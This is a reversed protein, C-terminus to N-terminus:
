KLMNYLEGISIDFINGDKDRVKVLTNQAFCLHERQFRENGIKSRQDEAWAEDRDPHREWTVKVPRFGNTGVKTTEGKDDVMDNAARWLVAFEDEDNNPTSTIILGGGASLTPMLAGWFDKQMNPPVFCFEDVYVISPSLGRGSEKTTARAVIKSDNKFAISTKNFEVVDDKLFEPLEKYAFKIRDIIEIAGLLRYSVILITRKKNFMADWLLYACSLETKGMQRSALVITDKYNIFADLMEVQYDYLRFPVVGKTPHKVKVYNEIFYQCSRKCKAIESIEEQSLYLQTDEHKLASPTPRM